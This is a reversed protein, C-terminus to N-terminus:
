FQLRNEELKTRVNRNAIAQVVLYSLKKPLWFLEIFNIGLESPTRGSCNLTQAGLFLKPSCEAKAYHYQLYIFHKCIITWSM